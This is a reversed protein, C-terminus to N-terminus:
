AFMMPGHGFSTSGTQAMTVTKLDDKVGAPVSVPTNKKGHMCSFKGNSKNRSVGAM